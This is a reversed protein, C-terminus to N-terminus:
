SNSESYKSTFKDGLTKHAEMQARLPSLPEYLGIVFATFMVVFIPTQTNGKSGRSEWSLTRLANFTAYPTSTDRNSLQTSADLPPFIAPNLDKVLFGYLLALTHMKNNFNFHGIVWNVNRSPYDGPSEKIRKFDLPLKAHRLISTLDRLQVHAVHWDSLINEDTADALASQLAVGAMESPSLASHRITVDASDDARSFSGWSKWTPDHCPRGVTIDPSKYPFHNLDAFGLAVAFVKMNFAKIYSPSRNICLASIHKVAVRSVPLFSGKALIITGAKSGGPKAMEYISSTFTEVSLKNIKAGPLGAAVLLPNTVISQVLPYYSEELTAFPKDSRQWDNLARRRTKLENKTPPHSRALSAEIDAEVGATVIGVADLKFLRLALTACSVATRMTPDSLNAVSPLRM